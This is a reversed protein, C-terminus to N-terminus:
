SQTTKQVVYLFVPVHGGEDEPSYQSTIVQMLIIM